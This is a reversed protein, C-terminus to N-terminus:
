IQSYPCGSCGMVSPCVAMRNVLYASASDVASTTTPAGVAPAEAGSGPLCTRGESSPQADLPVPVVPPEAAVASCTCTTRFRASSTVASASVASASVAGFITYTSPTTSAFVSAVPFDNDQM